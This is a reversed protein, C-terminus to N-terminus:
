SVTVAAYGVVQRDDGTVDGSTGYAIVQARTAGLRAAAVMMIAAPVVGCMTIRETRCVRLLGEPDFATIRELALGDKARASAASEYHSMDSSAVILVDGGFATIASALGRGIEELVSFDGYGLCLAAISVDPRLMQLFPLQVELSHEQRHAQTDTQVLPIHQLILANLRSDLPVPGLPDAM